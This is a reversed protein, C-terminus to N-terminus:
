PMPIPPNPGPTNGPNAGGGTVSQMVVWMGDDGQNAVLTMAADDALYDTPNVSYTGGYVKLYAPSTISFDGVYSGNYIKLGGTYEPYTNVDIAAVIAKRNGVFAGDNVTIVGGSSFVYLANEGTYTGGNVIVESGGSVSVASSCHDFYNQQTFTCNTLTAKGTKSHEGLDAETVEIGGGYSSNITVNTLEAEGGLVKVNLGWPRANELTVDSAVLKGDAEVRFAGYCGAGNSSTTGSGVAVIKGGGNVTLTGANVKFARNNVNSGSNVTITKGNTNLTLNKEILYGNDSTEDHLMVITSGAPADSLAEGLTAYCTKGVCAVYTGTEFSVEFPSFGTTTITLIGTVPDYDWKDASVEVANHKVSTINKEAGIDISITYETGDDPVAEGNKNLAIDCSFVGDVSTDVDTVILSFVDDVAVASAPVVVTVNDVTLTQDASSAATVSDHPINYQTAIVRFAFNQSVEAASAVDYSEPLKVAVAVVAEESEAAGKGEVVVSLIRTPTSVSAPNLDALTDLKTMEATSGIAATVGSDKYYFDFSSAVTEATFQPLMLDFKVPYDCKNIFKIYRIVSNGPLLTTDGDGDAFLVGNEFSQWADTFAKNFKVEVDFAGTKIVNNGSDVSSTFWAYTTGFLLAVCLFTAVISVTLAKGTKNRKKLFKM